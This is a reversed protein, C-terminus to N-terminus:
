ICIFASRTDANMQTIHPVFVATALTEKTNRWVGLGAVSTLLLLVSAPEPVSQVTLTATKLEFGPLGSGSIFHFLVPGSLVQPSVTFLPNTGNFEDTKNAYFTGQITATGVGVLDLTSQNVNPIPGGSGSFSVQVAAAGLDAIGAIGSVFSVTQGPLALFPTATFGGESGAVLNFTNGTLTDLGILNFTLGQGVILGGPLTGTGGTITGGIITLAVPDAQVSAPILLLPLLFLMRLFRPM